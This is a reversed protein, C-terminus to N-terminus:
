LWNGNGLRELVRRLVAVGLLVCVTCLAMRLCLDYGHWKLVVGVELLGICVWGELGNLLLDYLLM